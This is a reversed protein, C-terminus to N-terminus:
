AASMLRPWTTCLSCLYGALKTQLEVNVLVLGACQYTSKIRLVESRKKKTETWIGSEQRYKRTIITSQQNRGKYLGGGDSRRVGVGVGIGSVKKKVEMDVVVWRWELWM